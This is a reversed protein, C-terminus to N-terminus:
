GGWFRALLEALKHGAAGGALAIGGIFSVVKLKGRELNEITRKAGPEGNVGNKWELLDSVLNALDSIDKNVAAMEKQQTQIAPLVAAKMDNVAVVLAGVTGILEGFKTEDIAM